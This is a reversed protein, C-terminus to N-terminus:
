LINPDYGIYMSGAGQKSYVRAYARAYQCTLFITLIPFDIMSPLLFYWNRLFGVHAPKLSQNAAGPTYSSWGHGKQHTSIDKENNLPRIHQSREYVIRCLANRVTRKPTHTVHSDCYWRAFQQIHQNYM